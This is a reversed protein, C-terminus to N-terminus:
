MKAGGVKGEDDACITPISRCVSSKGNGHNPREHSYPRRPAPAAFSTEGPAITSTLSQVGVQRYGCRLSCPSPLISSHVFSVHLM